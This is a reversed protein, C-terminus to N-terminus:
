LNLKRHRCGTRSSWRPVIRCCNRKGCRGPIITFEVATFIRAMLLSLLARHSLFFERSGPESQPLAEGITWTASFEAPPDEDTCRLNYDGQGAPVKTKAKKKKMDQSLSRRGDDSEEYQGKEDRRM